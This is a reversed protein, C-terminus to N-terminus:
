GVRRRRHRPPRLPFSCEVITGGSERPRVSLEGGISRARYQMTHMGMGGVESPDGMGIGDDAIRLMGRDNMCDCTLELRKAKGHKVANTIAEQAIRYLHTASDQDLNRPADDVVVTCAAGLLIETQAALKRLADGFRSSDRIPSLGRALEGTQSVADM